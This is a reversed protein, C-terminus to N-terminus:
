GAVAIAIDYLEFMSFQESNESTEEAYCGWEIFDDANCVHLSEVVANEITTGKGIIEDSNTRIIYNKM